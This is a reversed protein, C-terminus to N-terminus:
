EAVQIPFAESEIFPLYSVTFSESFDSGGNGSPPQGVLGEGALRQFWGDHSLPLVAAGLFVSEASIEKVSGQWLRGKQNM